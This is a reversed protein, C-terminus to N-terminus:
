WRVQQSGPPLSQQLLTKGLLDLDDLGSTAAPPTPGAEAKGVPVSSVGLEPSDSSQLLFLLTICLCVICCALSIDRALVAIIYVSCLLIWSWKAHSECAYHTPLLSYLILVQGAGLAPSSSTSWSHKYSHLNEVMILMQVPNEMLSLFSVKSLSQSM